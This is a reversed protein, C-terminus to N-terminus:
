MKWFAALLFVPKDCKKLIDAGNETHPIPICYHVSFSLSAKTSITNSSVGKPKL